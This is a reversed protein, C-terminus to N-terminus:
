MTRENKMYRKVMGRVLEIDNETTHGIFILSLVVCNLLHLRKGKTEKRFIGPVDIM